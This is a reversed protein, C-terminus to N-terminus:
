DLMLVIIKKVVSIQNTKKCPNKNNTDNRLSHMAGTQDSRLRFVASSDNQLCPDFDM